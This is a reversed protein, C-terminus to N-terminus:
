NDFRQEALHKLAEKFVIGREDSSLYQVIQGQDHSVSVIQFISTVM